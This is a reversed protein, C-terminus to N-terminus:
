VEECGDEWLVILEILVIRKAEDSRMVMDPRLFLQIIQPFHPKIGLDLWMEQFQALQLLSKKSSPPKEGESSSPHPQDRKGCNPCFSQLHNGGYCNYM